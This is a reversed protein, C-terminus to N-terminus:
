RGRCVFNQVEKEVGDSPIQRPNPLYNFSFVINGLKNYAIVKLTSYLSNACDISTYTTISSYSLGDETWKLQNLETKQWFLRFGEQLRISKPDVFTTSENDADVQQWELALASTPVLFILGTFLGFIRKLM